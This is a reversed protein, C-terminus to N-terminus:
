LEQATNCAGFTGLRTLLAVLGAEGEEDRVVDYAIALARQALEEETPNDLRPLGLAPVPVALAYAEFETFV